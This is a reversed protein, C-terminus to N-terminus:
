HGDSSVASDYKGWDWEERIEKNQEWSAKLLKPDIGHKEMTKILSNIDKPFCLGGYGKQGDHGPVDTHMHSLRGDSLVGAMLNDWDIDAEDAFLRLENFFTVKVAFFANLAYKTLESEKASIELCNVGSFRERYLEAVVSTWEPRGGVIHRVPTMFDELATRATLFEPNHVVKLNPWLQNLSDIYGVPVTSKVAYIPKFARRDYCDQFFSSIIRLDCDGGEVSAMPTPLCVFVIDSDLVEDLSHTSKKVDKDYAKVKYNLKFGNVIASGVFGVGVVGITKKNLTSM